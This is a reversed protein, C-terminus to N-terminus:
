FTPNNKRRKALWAMTAEPDLSEYIVKGDLEISYVADLPFSFDLGQAQAEDAITWPKPRYRRNAEYNERGLRQVAEVVQPSLDNRTM